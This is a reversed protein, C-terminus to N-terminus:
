FYICLYLHADDKSYYINFNESDSRIGASAYADPLAATKLLQEMSFELAAKDTFQLEVCSYGRQVASNVSAALAGAFSESDTYNFINNEYVSFNFKKATCLPLTQVIDGHNTLLYDTNINFYKHICTNGSETVPDDWTVDVFYGEGEILVYNWMHGTPASGDTSGTGTVLRNDINLYNLLYQFARSYGECSAVGEVLCGYINNVNDGKTSYVCNNILYDHVFLEREYVSTYAGAGALIENAKAAVASLMTNYEEATVTYEPVFYTGKNDADLVGKLGLAFMDPNDLSVASFVKSFDGDSFPKVNIKEPMSYLSQMIAAYLEKESENLEEYCHRYYGTGDGTVPATIQLEEPKSLDLIKVTAFASVILAAVIVGAFILIYKTKNKM